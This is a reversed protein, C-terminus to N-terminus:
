FFNPTIRPIEKIYSTDSCDHQVLLQEIVSLGVQQCNSLDAVSSREIMASTTSDALCTAALMQWFTWDDNLSGPPRNWLASIDDTSTVGDLVKARLFCVRLGPFSTVLDVIENFAQRQMDASESPLTYRLLKSCRKELKSPVTTTHLTELRQLRIDGDGFYLKIKEAVVHPGLGFSYAARNAQKELAKGLSRYVQDLTRGPSPNLFAHLILGWRGGEPRSDEDIKAVVKNADPQSWPILALRSDM